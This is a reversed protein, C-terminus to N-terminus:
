RKHIIYKSSFEKISDLPIKDSYLVIIEIRSIVERWLEDQESEQSQFSSVIDEEAWETGAIFAMREAIAIASNGDEAYDKAAKAKDIINM